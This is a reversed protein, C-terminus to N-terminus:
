QQPGSASKRIRILLTWIVGAVFVLVGYMFMSDGYNLVMGLVGAAMVGVAWLLDNLKDVHM